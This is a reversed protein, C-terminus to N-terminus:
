SAKAVLADSADHLEDPASNETQKSVQRAPVGAVTAHSPVDKLVVSSAGVTAHPGISINGLLQANAGILVDYRVKPHRDGTVKGTGGLTVGHLITVNDGVVATEGIVIGTGHDLFVGSGIQAAPHIDIGLKESIQSQMHAALSRRGQHWLQHAFRHAQLAHFGKFFLYPILLQETAPDRTQIAHLDRVACAAILPQQQLILDFEKQWAPSEHSEFLKQSLLSSLSSEFTRHELLVRNVLPQLLPEGLSRAERQLTIWTPKSDFTEAATKLYVSESNPEGSGSKFRPCKPRVLSLSVDKLDLSPLCCGVPM